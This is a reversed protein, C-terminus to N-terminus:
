AKLSWLAAERQRRSTLGNSKVLEKTEPDRVKNWRYIQTPVDEYKGLNLVKVLTSTSFNGSGINFALSVLSSFQNSSLPVTVARRVFGEAEAVDMDFLEDARPRTIVDGLRVGRTHGYGITPKGAPCIYARLRLAEAARIIAKGAANCKITNM